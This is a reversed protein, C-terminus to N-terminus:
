QKLNREINNSFYNIASKETAKVANGLGPRSKMRSTGRELWKAYPVTSSGAGFLMQSAGRIQFGISKRYKGTLNAPSEGPASARHNIIRTGRKIRYVRGGKPKKLIQKSATRKLDNGFQFFGQRLGRSTANRINSINVFVKRNRPDAKIEVSM